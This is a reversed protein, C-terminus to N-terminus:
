LLQLLQEMLSGDVVVDVISYGDSAAITYAADTGWNVSSPGTILGNATQTVTIAYTNILYTATITHTEKVNNFTYPSTLPAASGDVTVTAIHYGTDPTITFAQNDDYTVDTTGPAITGHGSQTVTITFSNTAASVAITHSGQVNSFTYSTPYTSLSIPSGDVLVQSVSYGTDASYTFMKSGGYDVSQVTSPTISSHGDHM